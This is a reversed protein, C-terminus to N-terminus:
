GRLSDAPAALSAEHRVDFLRSEHDDVAMREGEPGEIGERHIAKLIALALVGVRDM